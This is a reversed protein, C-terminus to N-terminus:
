TTKCFDLYALTLGVDLGVKAQWGLSHLRTSDILKRPAGDPKTADFIIGGVYGVTKAM